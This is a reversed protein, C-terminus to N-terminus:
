NCASAKKFLAGYAWRLVLVEVPAGKKSAVGPIHIAGNRFTAVDKRLFPSYHGRLISQLTTDCDHTNRVDLDYIM